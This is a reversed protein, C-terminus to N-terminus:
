KKRRLGLLCLLGFGFLAMMSPEPVVGIDFVAFGVGPSRIGEATMLQGLTDGELVYLKGNLYVSASGKGVNFPVDPLVESTGTDLYYRAFGNQPEGRSEFFVWGQVPGSSEGQVMYLVNDGTDGGAGATGSPSQVLALSNGWLSGGKNAVTNWGLDTYLSDILIVRPELSNNAGDYVDTLMTGGPYNADNHTWLMLEDASMHYLIDNAMDYAFAGHDPRTQHSVGLGGLGSVLIETVSGGVVEYRRVEQGNRGRNNLIVPQGAVDLGLCAARQSFYNGTKGLSTWTGTTGQSLDYEFLALGNRYKTYYLKGGAVFLGNTFADNSGDNVVTTIDPMAEWANTAVNYRGFRVTGSAYGLTDLREDITDALDQNLDIYDGAASGHFDAAYIYTGDTALGGGASVGHEFPVDALVTWTELGLALGPLALVAVLAM